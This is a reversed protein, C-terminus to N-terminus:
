YFASKYGEEYVKFIDYKKPFCKTVNDLVEILDSVTFQLKELTENIHKTGGLEEEFRKDISAQIM